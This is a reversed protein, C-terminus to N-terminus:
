GTAGVLGAAEARAPQPTLDRVVTLREVTRGTLWSLTRNPARRVVKAGLRELGAARHGVPANIEGFWGTLGALRCRRDIHDVLLRGGRGARRGQALNLHAHAPMPGDLGRRWLDWSDILRLRHFRGTDNGYTARGVFRAAISRCHRRVWRRYSAPDTCVLAYGVVASGDVLVAADVRGPGLYWDLCLASYRDFGSVAVPLPHGLVVTSTFLRRIADDDEPRVPRVQLGGSAARERPHHGAVDGPLHFRRGSFGADLGDGPLVPRRGTGVDAPAADTRESCRGPPGDLPGDVPAGAPSAM